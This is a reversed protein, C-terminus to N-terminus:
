RATSDVAPLDLRGDALAETRLAEVQRALLTRRREVALRERLEDRLWDLQPPTGPPLRAVLQVVYFTNGARLVPAVGGPELPAVAEALADGMARLRSEPVYGASFALAGPADDAYERVVLRWLSDAMPSAAARDLAARAQGAEAASATRLLRLRVYPEDLTLEAQHQRFYAELEDDTPSGPNAAFFREVLADALVARESEDLARRVAPEDAVGQTRAEQVLLENTVWQEVVQQRAAASDLGPPLTELAEALDEQTLVADGVRAVWNGAPAPGRRCGVALPLLLLVLAVPRM